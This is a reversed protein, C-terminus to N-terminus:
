AKAPLAKAARNQAVFRDRRHLLWALIVFIVLSSITIVAAPFRKSGLDRIMYVYEHNRTTDIVARAPARGPESRQPVLPAVEVIAHHPKHWFAFFDVKGDFLQPSRQGGKDFVNVVQFEGAGLAKSEEMLVTGASGAQQFSPLAPDLQKWGQDQLQKAITAADKTADGSSTFGVPLLGVESLKAPDRIITEGAVPKWAPADGLLGKGYSWWISGLIFMWGALAAFVIMFGLRAGVNSGVILYISGCLVGVSIIVILIGRLQPEWNIALLASM